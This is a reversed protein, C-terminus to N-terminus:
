DTRIRRRRCGYGLVLLALIALSVSGISAVRLGLAYAIAMVELLDEEDDDGNGKNADIYQELAEPDLSKYHQQGALAVIKVPESQDAFFDAVTITTSGSQDHHLKIEEVIQYEGDSFQVAIVITAAGASIYSKREANEVQLQWSLQIPTTNGSTRRWEFTQIFFSDKGRIRQNSQPISFDLYSITRRILTGKYALPAIRFEVRAGLAVDEDIAELDDRYTSGVKLETVPRDCSGTAGFVTEIACVTSRLVIQGIAQVLASLFDFTTGVIFDTVAEVFNFVEPAVESQILTVAAPEIYQDAEESATVVLRNGSEFPADNLESYRSSEVAIQVPDLDVDLEDLVDEISITAQYKEEPLLEAPESALATVYVTSLLVSCFLLKIMSFKMGKGAMGHINKQNGDIGSGSSLNM